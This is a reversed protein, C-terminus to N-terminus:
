LTKTLITNLLYHGNDTTSIYTDEIFEQNGTRDLYKQLTMNMYEQRELLTGIDRYRITSLRQNNNLKKTIM